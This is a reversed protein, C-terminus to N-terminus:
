RWVTNAGDEETNNDQSGIVWVIYSRGLPHQGIICGCFCVQNMHPNGIISHDSFWLIILLIFLVVWFYEKYIFYSQEVTNRM